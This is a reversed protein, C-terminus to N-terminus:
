NPQLAKLRHRAQFEQDPSKGASAALFLKYNEIARPYARLNDYSTARLWYTGPTEPLYRARADLVRIALEYHKNQGAAFALDSYADMLGPNIQLAHALEREAEAYNHQHLLADGYSYHLDADSPNKQALRQLLAAAKDYQKNDLYLVSLERMTAPDSTGGGVELAAIAEQTKGEAALTKGLQLRAPKNQPNTELYKRLWSEADPLRKQRVYLGILQEVANSNGMLAARHYQQEAGSLDGGRQLLSGMAQFNESVTPDLDAAKQYDALAEQPQSEELVQALASWARSLVANGGVTPHLTVATKLVAAADTANGSGALALGLNLNAEFWKPRLETAKRYASIAQATDGLHSEAFGLDFWAQPNDGSRSIIARLKVAAEEFQHKQLLVEANALSENTAGAAPQQRSSAKAAQQAMAPCLLAVVLAAIFSNIAM